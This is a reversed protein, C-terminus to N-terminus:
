HSAPIEHGKGGFCFFDVADQSVPIAQYEAETMEVVSVTAGVPSRELGAVVDTYFLGGGPTEIKFVKKM